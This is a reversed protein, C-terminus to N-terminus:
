AASWHVNFKKQAAKMNVPSMMFSKGATAFDNAAAPWATMRLRCYKDVGVLASKLLM